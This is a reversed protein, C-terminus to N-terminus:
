PKPCRSPCEQLDHLNFPSHLNCGLEGPEESGQQPRDPRGVVEYGASIRTFDIWLARGACGGCLTFQIVHRCDGIIQSEVDVNHLPNLNHFSINMMWPRM